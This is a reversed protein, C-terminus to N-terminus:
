SIKTPGSIHNGTADVSGSDPAPLTGTTGSITVPGTVTNDDFEVGASNGTLSVPGTITNGACPAPGDDDGIVVISTSSTITLPGTIHAGCIRITAGSVRVPGTITGGEVDVMGGAAVTLPGTVQASPGLYLVQGAGITLSGTHTGTVSTTATVTLTGTVFSFRYNAAGLSGPGCTIPYTGVPSTPGAPSSCSAQGAVGSTALTQGNVFGAITASLAPNAQGFLRSANVPTVVLTAPAVTLSATGTSPQFDAAGSYTGTVTDSGAPAASASCSGTGSSGLTAVCLTTSGTTFTVTGEPTGPGGVGATYVVPSGYTPATPSVTVSTTTTAPEVTM